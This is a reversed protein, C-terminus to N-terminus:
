LLFDGAAQGFAGDAVSKNAVLVYSASVYPQTLALNRENATSYDRDIGAVM